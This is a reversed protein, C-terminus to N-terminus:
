IYVYNHQDSKRRRWDLANVHKQKRSVQHRSCQMGYVNEKEIVRTLTLLQKLEEKIIGQEQSRSLKGQIFSALLSYELGKVKEILFLENQICTSVKLM